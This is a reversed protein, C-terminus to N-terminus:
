LRNKLIWNLHERSFAVAAASEPREGYDELLQEYIGAAEKWKHLFECSMGLNAMAGARTETEPYATVVELLARAARDYEQQDFLAMAEEYKLYAQIEKLEGLLEQAQVVMESNAHDTIVKEYASAAREYEEQNFYYDGLTFQASPAFLSEPFRDLLDVFQAVAEEQRDLEFDCWGLNYIANDVFESRPYEDLVKKYATAAEEYRSLNFLSEGRQFLAEAAVESAPFRIVLRGFWEAAEEFNTLRMQAYALFYFANELNPNDGYQAVFEQLLPIAEENDGLAFASVAKGFVLDSRLSSRLFRVLAESFVRRAQEHDELRAYADGMVFYAREELLYGRGSVSDEFDADIVAQTQEIAEQYRELSYYLEALLLAYEAKEHPDDTTEIIARYDKTAAARRGTQVYGQGLLRHAQDKMNLPPDLVLLEELDRIAREFDGMKHYATGRGLLAGQLMAEKRTRLRASHFAEASEAFRGQDFYVRALVYYLEGLAAEGQARALGRQLFDEAKDLRGLRLLFDGALLGAKSWLDSDRPIQELVKVAEDYREADRYALGLELLIQSRGEGEPYEELHTEYLDAARNYAEQGHYIRATQLLARSVLEPRQQYDSRIQGYSRLAVAADAEEGRRQASLGAGFLSEAKLDTGPHDEMVELYVTQSQSYSNLSTAVDGASRHEEALEFLCQATQFRARDLELGGKGARDGYANTYLNYEELANEFRRAEYYHRAIRSQMRARFGPDSVEDIARRYIRIGGELDDQEFYAEGIKVYADEVLEREQPYDRIVRRYASSAEEVDGEAAYTDGVLIQAKAALEFATEKVVGSLKQAEMKVRERESLRSFDKGVLRDLARRAEPYEGLEYYSKGIQFQARDIRYNTKNREDLRAFAEIARAYEGRNYYAWGMEYLTGDRYDSEPFREILRRAERIVSEYEESRFYSKVLQYQSLVQIEVLDTSQSAENYYQAAKQFHDRAQQRLWEARGEDRERDAEGLKTVALNSHSNGLQFTAAVKVPFDLEGVRILVQTEDVFRSDEAQRVIQFKEISQKYDEIVYFRQGRDFELKLTEDSPVFSSVVISSALLTGILIQFLM